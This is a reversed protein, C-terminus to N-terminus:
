LLWCVKKNNTRPLQSPEIFKPIGGINYNVEYM